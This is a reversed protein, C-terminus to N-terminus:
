SVQSVELSWRKPNLNLTQVGVLLLCSSFVVCARPILEGAKSRLRQGFTALAVIVAAAVVLWMALM